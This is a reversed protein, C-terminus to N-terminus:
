EIKEPIPTLEPGDVFEPLAYDIPSPNFFVSFTELRDDAHDFGALRQEDILELSEPNRQLQHKKTFHRPTLTIIYDSSYLLGRQTANVKVKKRYSVLGWDVVKSRELNYPLIGAAYVHIQPDRDQGQQAWHRNITGAQQKLIDMFEMYTQRSLNTYEGYIGPNVSVQDIYYFQVGQVTVALALVLKWGRNGFRGSTLGDVHLNDMLKIVIIALIPLYPLLMRYSFMMHATATGTAYGFFILGGILTGWYQKVTTKFVSGLPHSSAHGSHSIVAWGLLPLLGTFLGFQIMYLVNTRQHDWRAPKHFVSTPFIDHYYVYATALWAVALLLGPLLLRIITWSKQTESLRWQRSAVHFWMPLTVLCSDFRTLFAFGLCISFTFQNRKSFNSTCQCASAFAVTLFSSLFMTELGGAIWFIAYPSGWVLLGYLGLMRDKGLTRYAYVTSGFYLLLALIRNSWVSEGSLFYVVSVILSHLPSTLASVYEGSNFVLGNGNALNESYRYVIYADEAVFSSFWSFLAANLVAFVLIIKTTKELTVEYVEIELVELFRYTLM